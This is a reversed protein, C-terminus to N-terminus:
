LVTGHMNLHTQALHQRRWRCCRAAAWSTVAVALGVPWGALCNGYQQEPEADTRCARGPLSSCCASGHPIHKQISSQGPAPCPCTGVDAALDWSLLPRPDPHEKRRVRLAVDTQSSAWGKVRLMPVRGRWAVMHGRAHGRTCIVGLVGPVRPSDAGAAKEALVSDCKRL